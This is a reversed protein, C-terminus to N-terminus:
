LDPQTQKWEDWKARAQAYADKYKQELNILKSNLNDVM